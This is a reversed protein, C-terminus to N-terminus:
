QQGPQADPPLKIKLELSTKGNFDVYAAGVSRGGGRLDIGWGKPANEVSLMARQPPLGRNVPSLNSRAEEGARVPVVPFDTTLWVGKVDPPEPSQAEAAPVSVAFLLLLCAILKRM